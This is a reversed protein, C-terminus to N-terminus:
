HRFGAVYWDSFTLVIKYQQIQYALMIFYNEHKTKIFVYTQNATCVWPILGTEPIGLTSKTATRSIIHITVLGLM